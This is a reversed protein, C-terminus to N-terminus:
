GNSDREIEPEPAIGSPGRDARARPERRLSRQRVHHLLLLRCRPPLVAMFDRREEADAAVGTAMLPIVLLMLLAGAHAAFSLLVTPWKRVHRRASPDTVSGFLDRAHTVEKLNHAAVDASTPHRCANSV